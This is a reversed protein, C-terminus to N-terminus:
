RTMSLRAQHLDYIVRFQIPGATEPWISRPRVAVSEDASQTLHVPTESRFRVALEQSEQEFRGEITWQGLETNEMSGSLM